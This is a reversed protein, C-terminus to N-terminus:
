GSARSTVPPPPPHLPPTSLPAPTHILHTSLTPPYQPHYPTDNPQISLTYLYHVNLHHIPPHIHQSPTSSVQTKVQEMDVDAPLLLYSVPNTYRRYLHCSLLEGTVPQRNPLYSSSYSTSGLRRFTTTTPGGVSASASGGNVSASGGGGNVSDSGGGVGVDSNSGGNSGDVPVLPPIYLKYRYFSGLQLILAEYLTGESPPAGTPADVSGGGGAGGGSGESAGEGTAGSM